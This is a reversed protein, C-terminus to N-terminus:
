SSYGPPLLDPVGGRIAYAADCSACALTGEVVEGGDGTEKVALTLAGKDVPCELIDALDPRM